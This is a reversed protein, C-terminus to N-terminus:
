RRRLGWKAPNKLRADGVRIPEGEPTQWESLPFARDPPPPSLSSSPSATPTPTRRVGQAPRVPRQKQSTFRPSVRAPNLYHTATLKLTRRAGDTSLTVQKPEISVVETSADLPEGITVIHTTHNGAISEIIAKPPTNTDRPLLTGLLRYPETPHPPTWGLPRFLNNEVITRKFSAFDFDGPPTLLVRRLESSAPLSVIVEESTPTLLNVAVVIVVLVSAGTLFVGCARRHVRRKM